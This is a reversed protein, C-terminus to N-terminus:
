QKPDGSKLNMEARASKGEGGVVVVVVVVVVFLEEEEEEEEEKRNRCKLIEQLQQFRSGDWRSGREMM